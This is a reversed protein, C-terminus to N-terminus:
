DLDFSYLNDMAADDPENDTGISGFDGDEGASAFYPEKRLPMGRATQDTGGYESGPYYRVPRDWTDVVRDIVNDGNTDVRLAVDLTEVLDLAPRANNKVTTVFFDISAADAAPNNAYSGLYAPVQKTQASYEVRAGALQGLAVRMVQDKASDQSTLWVAGLIGMIGAIIAIVM